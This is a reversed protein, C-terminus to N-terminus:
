QDETKQVPQRAPAARQKLEHASQDLSSQWQGLETVAKEADLGLQKAAEAAAMWQRSAALLQQGASRVEAEVHNWDQEQFVRQSAQDVARRLREMEDIAEQEENRAAELALQGKEAAIKALAAAEAIEPRTDSQARQAEDRSANLRSVLAALDAVADRRKLREEVARELAAAEPGAPGRRSTELKQVANQIAALASAVAANATKLRDAVAAQEAASQALEDSVAAIQRALARLTAESSPAFSLQDLRQDQSSETANQQGDQVEDGGPPL